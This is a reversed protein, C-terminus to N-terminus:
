SDSLPKERSPFKMFVQFPDVSHSIECTCCIYQRISIYVYSVGSCSNNHYLQICKIVSQIM